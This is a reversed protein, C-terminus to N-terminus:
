PPLSPDQGRHQERSSPVPRAWLLIRVTWVARQTWVIVTMGM